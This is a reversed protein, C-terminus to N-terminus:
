ISSARHRFTLNFIRTSQESTEAIWLINPTTFCLQFRPTPTPPSHEDFLKHHPNKKTRKISQGKFSVVTWIQFRYWTVLRLVQITVSYPSGLRRGSSFCLNFPSTVIRVPNECKATFYLVGAERTCTGNSRRSSKINLKDDQGFYNIHIRRM